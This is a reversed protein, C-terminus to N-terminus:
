FTYTTMFTVRQEFIDRRGSIAREYSAGLSWHRGLPVRAGAAFTVVNNGAVEDSGINAIDFGEFSGTGLAAQVTGLPLSGLGDTDIGNTGAGDATYSIGNFAVFPSLFGGLDYDLHANWYLFSSNADDDVPLYFGTDGIFHLRELEVGFRDTPSWGVSSGLVFAGDGFGQFLRDNGAALQYRLSPTLIFRKGELELLAYKFGAMLDMFGEDDPVVPNKPRMIAYGDQTAIFALRNTLAIRAQLAVVGAEGGEFASEDPFQHWIGVFQLETTIFPDEFYYPMSMPPVWGEWRSERDCRFDPLWTPCRPKAAIPSAGLTIAAALCLASGCSRALAGILAM